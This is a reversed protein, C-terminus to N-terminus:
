QGVEFTQLRFIFITSIVNEGKWLRQCVDSERWSGSASPTIHKHLRMLWNEVKFRRSLMKNFLLSIRSNLQSIIVVALTNSQWVCPGHCLVKCCYSLIHCNLGRDMMLGENIYIFIVYNLLSSLLKWQFIFFPPAHTESGLSLQVILFEWGFMHHTAYKISFFFKRQPNKALQLLWLM